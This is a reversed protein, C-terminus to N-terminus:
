VTCSLNLSPSNQGYAPQCFRWPHIDVSGGSFSSLGWSASLLICPCHEPRHTCSILPAPYRPSIKTIFPSSIFVSSSITVSALSELLFYGRFCRSTLKRDINVDVPVRNHQARGAAIAATAPPAATPVNIVTKGHNIGRESCLPHINRTAPNFMRKLPISVKRERRLTAQAVVPPSPHSTAPRKVLAM